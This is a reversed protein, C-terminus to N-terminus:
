ARDSSGPSGTTGRIQPLWDHDPFLTGVADALWARQGDDLLPLARDRDRRDETRDLRAKFMLVIEPNLYRVGADDRWTVEDLPAVHDALKKNQWLGDANPTVPVDMVWPSGADRRVWIQADPAPLDPHRATMPRLAGDAVTWLHWRDGVFARLAPVDCALLSVDIDEHERPAGTFAEIAWGGVVWWPRDFGAFFAVAGELDFAEFPGYLRVWYDDEARETESLPLPERM